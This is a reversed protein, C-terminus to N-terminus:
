DLDVDAGRGPFVGADEQVRRSISIRMGTKRSPMFKGLNLQAKLPWKSLM